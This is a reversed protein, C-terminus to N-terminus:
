SRSRAAPLGIFTARQAQAASRLVRLGGRRSLWLGHPQAPYRGYSGTHQFTESAITIDCGLQDSLTSSPLLLTPRVHQPLTDWIYNVYNDTLEPAIPYQLM